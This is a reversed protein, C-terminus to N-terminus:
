IGSCCTVSIRPTPHTALIIPWPLDLSAVTWTTGISVPDDISFWSCNTPYFTRPSAIEPSNSIAVRKNFGFFVWPVIYLFFALSHRMSSACSSAKQSSIRVRTKIKHLADCRVGDGKQEFLDIPSQLRRSECRNKTPEKDGLHGKWTGFGDNSLEYWPAAQDTNVRHWRRPGYDGDDMDYNFYGDPPNRPVPHPDVKVAEAFSIEPEEVTATEAQPEPESDTPGEEPTGSVTQNDVPTTELQPSADTGTDTPEEELPLEEEQADSNSMDITKEWTTPYWRIQLIRAMAGGMFSSTNDGNQNETSPIARLWSPSLEMADDHVPHGGTLVVAGAFVMLLATVWLLWRRSEQTPTM